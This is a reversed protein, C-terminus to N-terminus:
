ARTTGAFGRGEREGGDKGGDRHIVAADDDQPDGDGVDGDAAEKTGFGEACHRVAATAEPDQQPRQVKSMVSRRM